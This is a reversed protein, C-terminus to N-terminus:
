GRDSLNALCGPAWGQKQVQAKHDERLLDSPFWYIGKLHCLHIPAPKLLFGVWFNEDFLGISALRSFGSIQGHGVVPIETGTGFREGAPCVLQKIHDLLRGIMKGFRICDSGDPVTQLDEPREVLKMGATGAAQDRVVIAKM